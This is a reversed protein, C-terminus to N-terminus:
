TWYDLHPMTELAVEYDPDRMFKHLATKCKMRYPVQTYERIFWMPGPEGFRSYNDSHYLALERKGYKSHKDYIIDYSPRYSRGYASLVIKNADTKALAEELEYCSDVLFWDEQKGSKRRYTRSM